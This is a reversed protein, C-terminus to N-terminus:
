LPKQTKECFKREKLIKGDVSFRFIIVGNEVRKTTKLEVLKHSNSGSSGVYIKQINTDRAGYSKNSKYICSDVDIWIPYSRSM